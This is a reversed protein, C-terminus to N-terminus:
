RANTNNKNKQIARSPREDNANEAAIRRRFQFVVVRKKVFRYRIRIRVLSTFFFLVVFYFCFSVRFLHEAISIRDPTLVFSLLVSLFLPRLRILFSVSYWFSRNLRFDLSLSFFVYKQEPFIKLDFLFSSYGLQTTNAKLSLQQSISFDTQITM